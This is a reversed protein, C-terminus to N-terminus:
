QPETREPLPLDIIPMDTAPPQEWPFLVWDDVTWAWLHPDLSTGANRCLAVTLVAAEDTLHPRLAATITTFTAGTGCIDDVLVVRGSLRQGVLAHTLPAVDHTVHGTAATYIADTTNHRANVQYATTGLRAALDRAPILGGNAIGIVASVPGGRTAADALLRIAHAYARTDMRLLHRRRFTRPSPQLTM